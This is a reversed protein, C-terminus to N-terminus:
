YEKGVDHTSVDDGAVDNFYITYYMEVANIVDKHFLKMLIHRAMANM